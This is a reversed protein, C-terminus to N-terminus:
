KPEPVDKHNQLGIEVDELFERRGQESLLDEYDARLDDPYMIIANGDGTRVLEIVNNYGNGESDQSMFIDEEPRFKKLEIEM